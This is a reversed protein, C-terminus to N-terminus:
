SRAVIEDGGVPEISRQWGPKRRALFRPRRGAFYSHMRRPAPLGALAGSPEAMAESVTGDAEILLMPLGLSRAWAQWDPAVEIPDSAIKIPISLAPDRHCLELVVMLTGTDGIDMRVAVGRFGSIPITQTGDANSLMARHRDITAITIGGPPRGARPVAFRVPLAGPDLGRSIDAGANSGPATQRGM